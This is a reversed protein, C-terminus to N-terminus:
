GGGVAVPVGDVLRSGAGGGGASRGGVPQRGGGGPGAESRRM